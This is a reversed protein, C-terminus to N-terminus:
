KELFPVRGSVLTAIILGSDTLTARIGTTDTKVIARLNELDKIFTLLSVYDGRMNVSLDMSNANAPLPALGVEQKKPPGTGVLTAQGVSISLLEISNKAALARVQESIYDPRPQTRVSNNISPIVSEYRSLLEAATELDNVKQNLAAITKQKAQIDNYLSIITLATPKLAFNLFIIVTSISLILEVFARLDARKKYLAQINM